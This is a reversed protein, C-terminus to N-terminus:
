ADARDALWGDGASSPLAVVLETSPSHRGQLVRGGHLEAILHHLRPGLHGPVQGLAGAATGHFRHLVYLSGEEIEVRVQGRGGIRSAVVELAAHFAAHIAGGVCVVHPAGDIPPLTLDVEPFAAHIGRAADRVLLATDHREMGSAAKSARRLTEASTVEMWGALEVMRRVGDNLAHFDGSGFAAELARALSKAERVWQNMMEESQLWERGVRRVTDEVPSSACESDAPGPRDAAVPMLVPGAEERGVFLIRSGPSDARARRVADELPEELDRERIVTVGVAAPPPESASEQDPVTSVRAPRDSM